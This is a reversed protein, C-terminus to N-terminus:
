GIMDRKRGRSRVVELRKLVSAGATSQSYVHVIREFMRESYAHTSSFARELVYLDVAKDEVLSSTSSLGFDILVLDNNERLIMNSTTLDGHIVDGAHMCAIAHGIKDALQLAEKCDSNNDRTLQLQKEIVERVSPGVVFEMYIVCKYQDVLYVAPTDVGLKRCRAMTRAEQLTRRKRIDADLQALRYTKVFREKVATDRGLFHLRFLRAEAGQQLLEANPYPSSPLLSM